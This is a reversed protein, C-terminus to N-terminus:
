AKLMYQKSLHIMELKQNLSLSEENGLSALPLSYAQWLPFVLSVTDIGPDPLDSPTPFPLGSWYEQRFFAMSLPAQHSETWPTAFPQVCSLTHTWADVCVCVSGKVQFSLPCQLTILQGFEMNNYRLSSPPGPLPPSILFWRNLPVILCVSLLNARSIKYPHLKHCGLLIIITVDTIVSWALLYSLLSFIQVRKLIELNHCLSVFHAFTLFNAGM